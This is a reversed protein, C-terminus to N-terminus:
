GVVVAPPAAATVLADCPAAPPSPSLFGVTTIFLSASLAVGAIEVGPSFISWYAFFSM